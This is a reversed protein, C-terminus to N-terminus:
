LIYGATQMDLAESERARWELEADTEHREIDADSCSLYPDFVGMGFRRAPHDIPRPFKVPPRTRTMM